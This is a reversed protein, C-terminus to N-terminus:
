NNKKYVEKMLLAILEKSNDKNEGNLSLDGLGICLTDKKSEFHTVVQIKVDFANNVKSLKLAQYLTKFKSIFEQEKIIKNERIEKFGNDRFSECTITIPYSVGGRIYCIELYDENKKFENCSICALLVLIIAYKM